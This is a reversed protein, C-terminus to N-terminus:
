EGLIVPVAVEVGAHEFPVVPVSEVLRCVAELGAEGGRALNLVNGLVAELAPVPELPRSSLMGSHDPDYRVLLIEDVRAASNVQETDARLDTVALHPFDDDDIGLIRRTDPRLTLPKPYGHVKGDLDVGISEDGLYDCGAAVLAATLTSKGASPPGTLVIVRGDPTRVTGAHIVAVGHSRAGDDNVVTPLQRFLQDLDTFEWEDAAFLTVGDDHPVVDFFRTAPEDIGGGLFADIREVITEDDCRFAIRREIVAHTRGTVTGATPAASDGPPAPFVYPTERDVLGPTRLTDLADLISEVLEARQEEPADAALDAIVVPSEQSLLWAAARGLVHTKEGILDVVVASEAFPALLLGDSVRYTPDDSM